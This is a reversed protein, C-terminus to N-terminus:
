ENSAGKLVTKSYGLRPINSTQLGLNPLTSPLPFCNSFTIKANRKSEAYKNVQCSPFSGVFKSKYELSKSSKEKQKFIVVDHLKEHCFSNHLRQLEEKIEPLSETKISEIDSKLLTVDLQLDVFKQLLSVSGSLLSLTIGVLVPLAYRDLFCNLRAVM